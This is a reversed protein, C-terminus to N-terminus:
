NVTRSLKGCDFIERGHGGWSGTTRGGFGLSLGLSRIATRSAASLTNAAVLRKEVIGAKTVVSEYQLFIAINAFLYYRSSKAKM